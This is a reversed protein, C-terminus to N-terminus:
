WNKKVAGKFLVRVEFNLARILNVNRQRSLVQIGLFIFQCSPDFDALPLGWVYSQLTNAYLM